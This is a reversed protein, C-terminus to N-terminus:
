SICCSASSGGCLAKHIFRGEIWRGGRRVWGGRESKYEGFEYSRDLLYELDVLVRVFDEKMLLMCKVEESCNRASAVCTAM